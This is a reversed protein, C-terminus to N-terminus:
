KFVRPSLREFLYTNKQLLKHHRIEFEFFPSSNKLYFIIDHRNPDCIRNFRFKVKLCNKQQFMWESNGAVLKRFFTTVFFTVIELM